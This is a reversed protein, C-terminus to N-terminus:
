MLDNSFRESRHSYKIQEGGAWYDGWSDPGLEPVIGWGYFLPLFKIQSINIISDSPTLTLLLTIM